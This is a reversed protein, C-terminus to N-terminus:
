AWDSVVDYTKVVAHARNSAAVTLTGNQHAVVCGDVDENSCLPSLAKTEMDCFKGDSGVFDPGFSTKSNCLQEATQEPYQSKVLRKKIWALRNPQARKAPRNSRKSAPTAPIGNIPGNDTGFITASCGENQSLTKKSLEGYARVTFKMAAYQFGNTHDGDFWACHPRWPGGGDEDPYTGAEQNGYYWLLGCNKGIDGPTGDYQTVSVWSVCTADNGNAISIYDAQTGPSSQDVTVQCSGGDSGIGCSGSQGLYNNNYDFAYVHDITGKLNSSSDDGLGAKVQVSAGAPSNSPLNSQLFAAITLGGSLLGIADIFGSM